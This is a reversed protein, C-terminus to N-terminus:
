ACQKSVLCNLKRPVTVCVETGRGCESSIVLCGGMKHAREEMAILGFGPKRRTGRVDFGAGDDRITLQVTEADATLRLQVRSCHAHKSINTLAEQTIRLVQVVTDPQLAPISEQAEFDTSIKTDAVFEAALNELAKTLCSPIIREPHLATVACRIETLGTQALQRARALHRRSQRGGKPILEEILDIQLMIGAFTQAMTDHLDCAIRKREEDIARQRDRKRVTDLKWGLVVQQSVLRAFELQEPAPAIRDALAIVMLGLVDRVVTDPEKMLPILLIQEAAEPVLECFPIGAPQPPKTILIPCTLCRFQEFRSAPEQHRRAVGAEQDGLSESPPAGKRYLAELCLESQEGRYVCLYAGLADFAQAVAALSDNLMSDIGGEGSVSRLIRISLVRFVDALHQLSTNRDAALSRSISQQKHEQAALQSSQVAGSERDIMLLFGTAWSQAGRQPLYNLTVNPPICDRILFANLFAYLRM